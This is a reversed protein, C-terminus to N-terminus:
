IAHSMVLAPWTTDGLPKGHAMQVVEVCFGPNAEILKPGETTIAVDWGVTAVRPFARHARLSLEKVESWFPLTEGDIRQGSNPHAEVDPKRPDKYVAKGLRGSPMDIPAAIGGAAFNDVRSLGTPMRLVAIILQPEASAERATVVRVTCLAGNTFPAMDPHNRLERQMIYPRPKRDERELEYGLRPVYARVRKWLPVATGVASMIRVREVLEVASLSVGDHEYRGTVADYRWRMIGRGCLLNTSKIFLDGRPLDSPTAFQAEVINGQEFYAITEVHPLGFRACAAAFKLKDDLVAVDDRDNVHKMVPLAIREDLFRSGFRRREPRYLRYKFYSAPWCEERSCFAWADLFLEVRSMGSAHKLGKGYKLTQKAVAPLLRLSWLRRTLPSAFVSNFYRRMDREADSNPERYGAEDLEREAVRSSGPILSGDAALTREPPTRVDQDEFQQHKM